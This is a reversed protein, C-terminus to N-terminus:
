VWFSHVPPSKNNSFPTYGKALLFLYHEQQEPEPLGYFLFKSKSKPYFLSSHNHQLYYCLWCSVDNAELQTSKVVIEKSSPSHATHIFQLSQICGM